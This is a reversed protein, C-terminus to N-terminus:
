LKNILAYLIYVWGAIVHEFNVIVYITDKNNAKFM